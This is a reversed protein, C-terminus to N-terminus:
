DPYGHAHGKHWAWATQIIQELKPYAPKWGFDKIAKTASAVLKPPDGPRRPKERAPIKCGTVTECTQIVERVSYGDGNGLNYFGQKGPPLALIHAQALDVVHIYDRICTGDPTPYDTGYIECERAQGLAVKLVNPILHTEIRHHEGYKDSAGAANFYRFAVFELGHLEHYWRLMREFMLKSEGYPNIPRQPLDETMPVRDPPGYTACTSSFVFKKVGVTLAAELLKLGNAVNNGFYKGPNTMSEGVLANAAFHLIAQPNATKVANLIDGEAEPKGLIFRARPDVASRHGETLNDYVTVEHGAKLLEETCVSGIYGAGGTLFVKM